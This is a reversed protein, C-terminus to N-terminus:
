ANTFRIGEGAMTDLRPTMIEKQGYSGLHGYGLDDALFFIINPHQEQASVFYLLLFLIAFPMKM